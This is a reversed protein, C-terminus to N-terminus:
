ASIIRMVPQDTTSKSAWIEALQIAYDMPKKGIYELFMTETAHGTVSMLLPTPYERQAYFNTAFSRRGIHSAVLMWKPYIGTGYKKTHPDKLNGETKSDIGAAFCVEKVLRDYISSNSDQNESFKPPFQGNRKSLIEEVEPHIPIQVIKNVKQQTLVVFRLGKHLQIMQDNMRLLDSARQGLFCSIVLWDRATILREDTLKVNKLLEIEEFTLTVIPAKISFAKFDDIQPSVEVGNRRAHLVITKVFGLYRGATNDSIKEVTELYELFEDRFLLNVDRVLFTRGKSSEFSRLKEVITTYKTLTASGVGKKGKVSTQYPLRKLFHEGYKVLHDLSDPEIRDHFRDITKELWDGDIKIGKKDDASHQNRVYAELSILRAKLAKGSADKDNPYGKAKSWLKSDIFERTKRKPTNNKAISFRLYIPANASDSQLLFKTTAMESHKSVALICSDVSKSLKM